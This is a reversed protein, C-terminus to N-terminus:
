SRLKQQSYFVENSHYTSLHRALIHKYNFGRGCEPCKHPKDKSHVALHSKLVGKTSFSKTCKPCKHKKEKLHVVSVHEELSSKRAFWKDCQECKIKTQNSHAETIHTDLEEKQDFKDDCLKCKHIGGTSHFTAVHRELGHKYAFSKGCNTCQHRREMFHVTSIHDDLKDTRAFFKPCEPCKYKNQETNFSLEEKLKQKREEESLGSNFLNNTIRRGEDHAYAQHDITCMSNEQIIKKPSISGNGEDFETTEFTLHSDIIHTKLRDKRSFGENCEPCEIYHSILNSCSKIEYYINNLSIRLKLSQRIESAKIWIKNLQHYM